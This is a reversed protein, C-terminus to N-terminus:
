QIASVVLTGHFVQSKHCVNLDMIDAKQKSVLLPFSFRLLILPTLRQLCESVIAGPRAVCLKGTARTQANRTDGAPLVLSRNSSTLKLWSMDTHLNQLYSSHHPLASISYHVRKTRRIVNHEGTHVRVHIGWYMTSPVHDSFRSTQLVSIYTISLTTSVRHICYTM